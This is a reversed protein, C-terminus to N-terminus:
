TYYLAIWGIEGGVFGIILREGFIILLM